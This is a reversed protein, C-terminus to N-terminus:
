ENNEERNLNPYKKVVELECRLKVIENAAASILPHSAMHKSDNLVTQLDDVIDRM